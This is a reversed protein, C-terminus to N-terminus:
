HLFNSAKATSDKLMKLFFEEKNTVNNESMSLQPMGSSCTRYCVLGEKNVAVTLRWWKFLSLLVDRVKAVIEHNGLYSSDAELNM